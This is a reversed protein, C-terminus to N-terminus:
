SAYLVRIGPLVSSNFRGTFLLAEVLVLGLVETSLIEILFIVSCGGNKFLVQFVFSAIGAPGLCSKRRWAM